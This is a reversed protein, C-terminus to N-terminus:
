AAQEKHAKHEDYRQIGWVIAHCCWLFTPDWVTCDHEWFDRFYFKNKVPVHKRLIWDYQKKDTEYEYEFRNIADTLKDIPVWYFLGKRHLGIHRVGATESTCPCHKWILDLNAATRIMATQQSM